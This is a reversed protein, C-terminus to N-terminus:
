LFPAFYVFHFPCSLFHVERFIDQKTSKVKFGHLKLM